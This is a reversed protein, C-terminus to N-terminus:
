NEKLIEWYIENIDPYSKLSHALRLMAEHSIKRGSRKASEHLRQATVDSM